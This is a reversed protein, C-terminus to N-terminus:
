KITVVPSTIPSIHYGQETRIIIAGLAQLCRVTAEIDDNTQPCNLYTPVDSFAACILLRHAQSKSPIAQITGSLRAPFITLDM